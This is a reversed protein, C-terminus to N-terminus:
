ETVAITFNTIFDSGSKGCFPFQNGDYGSSIQASFDFPDCSNLTGSGPENLAPNGYSTGSIILDFFWGSDYWMTISFSDGNCLSGGEWKLSVLNYNLTATVGLYDTGTLWDFDMTAYLRRPIRNECVGEIFVGCCCNSLDYIAM